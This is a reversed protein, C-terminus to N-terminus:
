LALVHCVYKIIVSSVYVNIRYNNACVYFNHMLFDPTIKILTVICMGLLYALLEIKFYRSFM